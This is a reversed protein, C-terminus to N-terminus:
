AMSWPVHLDAGSVSGAGAVAGEWRGADLEAVNRAWAECFGPPAEGSEALATSTREYDRRLSLSHSLATSTEVNLVVHWFGAPAFVTEGPRQVIVFADTPLSRVGGEGDEGGDWHQFWELASLDEDGDLLLLSPDTDPRLLVWLKCGSTLSNWAVTTPHDHIPTGSGRAGVLLWVPPLPRCGDVALTSGSAGRQTDQTFYRPVSFEAAMRQGDAFCRTPLEPDFIYLPAADKEGAGATGHVGCYQAYAQMGVKAGCLSQRAVSPGGDVAWLADAPARAALSQADWQMAAWGDTCGTLVAPILPLDAGSAAFTDDSCHLRSTNDRYVVGGVTVTREGAVFSPLPM